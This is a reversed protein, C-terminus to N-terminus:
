IIAEGCGGAREDHREDSTVESPAVYCRCTECWWYGQKLLLHETSESINQGTCIQISM